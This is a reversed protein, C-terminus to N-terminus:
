YKARKLKILNKIKKLYQYDLYYLIKLSISNTQPSDITKNFDKFYNSKIINDEKEIANKYVLSITSGPAFLWSYVLDVNFVNYSFNNNGSYNTNLEIEGNEMLTYYRKYEGTNWYHRSLINLSMDNKFMYQLSLINEYTILKRGGYIIDNNPCIDAFGINYSDNSYNFSYALQLKDNFRYSLGPVIKFGKGEFREIFDGFESSISYVIPNRPNSNLGANLYFYRTNRSFKGAVRPEFYDYTVFPSVMAGFNFNGYNNLTFYLDIRGEGLYPKKTEPNIGYDFYITNYSERFYKNPKYTNYSVYVREKMKNETVYYGLDRSDYNKNIYTHSIGYLLKGSIKRFGLFYQYGADNINNSLTDPKKYKISVAADGDVAFSTKKNKLSFGMGTVNANKYNNNYRAVNTNILYASSSNKFQQDFVFVNYNTLPETLIKRSNGLSDEIIAYTNDTIANFLGIGMGKNNRGSLKVANLLRTKSPNEKIKEGSNLMYPLMYFGLPTKGIRKSYFLNNKTFLETGEKFFPRNENYTVEMYSLNKIKNDSQVQSFDPLLTLDLTFKENIGYKLDAGANYSTSNEYKSSQDESIVPANEFYATVFPTFSLRLPAKINSIGKLTGWALRTNSLTQPTLAWQDYEGTRKIERTFQFGWEQKPISPFRIASYPIKMEVAWGKENIKVASEWVADYTPDSDKVESQVGSATVSFVYADLRNYTDFGIYFIDANISEDDRSGLEHFISDPASDYLMASVYIFNDNYS